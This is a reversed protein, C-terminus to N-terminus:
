ASASLRNSIKKNSKGMEDLYARWFAARVNKPYKEIARTMSIKRGTDKCFTGREKISCYAIGVDSYATEGNAFVMCTTTGCYDLPKGTIEGLFVGSNRDQHKWCVRFDVGGFSFKM